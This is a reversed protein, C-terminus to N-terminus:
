DRRKKAPKKELKKWLEETESDEEEEEETKRKRSTHKVAVEEVPEDDELFWVSSIKSGIYVKAVLERSVIDFVRLYRDLGGTSILGSEFDAHLAQIAGVAGPFKGVLRGTTMNYKATTTHSDSCIIEESNPTSTLTLLPKESVKIDQIPKRGNSTVYKRLQGYRTITALEWHKPDASAVPDLFMIKSIWVPVRLDLHDNKVNKAQFLQTIKVDEAKTKKSISLKTLKNDNTISVVKLDNDKGGYAFVAKQLPHNIFASLPGRLNIKVPPLDFKGGNPDIITVLGSQTALYIHTENFILAIFPDTLAASLAEFKKVVEYTELDIVELTGTRRAALAVQRNNITCVILQQVKQALTTTCYTEIASPQPATQSATDTGRVCKVEKLSGSDDASVIVKM